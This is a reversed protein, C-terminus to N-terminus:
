ILPGSAITEQLFDFCSVDCFLKEQYFVLPKPPFLNRTKQLAWVFYM